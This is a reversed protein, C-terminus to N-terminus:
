GFRRRTCATSDAESGSSRASNGGRQGDDRGVGFYEHEPLAAAIDDLQHSLAEQFGLLDFYSVSSTVTGKRADWTLPDGPNDYRVNFTVVAVEDPHQAEVENATSVLVLGM